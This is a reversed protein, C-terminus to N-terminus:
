VNLCFCYRLPHKTWLSVLESSPAILDSIFLKKTSLVTLVLEASSILVIFGVGTLRLINHLSWPVQSSRSQHCLYVELPLFLVLYLLPAAMLATQHFCPTFDPNPTNWTLSLDWLPDECLEMIIVLVIYYSRTVSHISSLM